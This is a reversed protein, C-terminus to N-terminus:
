ACLLWDLWERAALADDELHLVEGAVLAIVQGKPFVAARAEPSAAVCAVSAAPVVRSLMVATGKKSESDPVGEDNVEAEPIYAMYSM